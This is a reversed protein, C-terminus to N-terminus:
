PCPLLRNRQRVLLFPEHDDVFRDFDFGIRRRPEPEGEELQGVYGSHDVETGWSEHYPFDSWPEELPHVFQPIWM